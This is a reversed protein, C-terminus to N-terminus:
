QRGFDSRGVEGTPHSGRQTSSGDNAYPDRVEDAGTDLILM